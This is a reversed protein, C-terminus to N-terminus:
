PFVNRAAQIKIIYDPPWLPRGHVGEPDTFVGKKKNRSGRPTTQLKDDFFLTDDEIIEVHFVLGCKPTM